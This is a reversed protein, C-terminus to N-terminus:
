TLFQNRQYQQQGATGKWPGLLMPVSLPLMKCFLKAPGHSQQLAKSHSVLDLSNPFSIPRKSRMEWSFLQTRKQTKVKKFNFRPVQGKKGSNVNESSYTRCGTLGCAATCGGSTCFAKRATFLTRASRSIRTISNKESHSTASRIGALCTSSVLDGWREKM